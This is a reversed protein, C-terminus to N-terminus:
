PLCWPTGGCYNTGEQKHLPLADFERVTMDATFRKECGRCQFEMPEDLDSDDASPAPKASDILWQDFSKLVGGRM